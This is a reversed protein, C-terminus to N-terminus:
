FQRGIIQRSINQRSLKRIPSNNKTSTVIYNNTNKEATQLKLLRPKTKKKIAQVIYEAWFIEVSMYRLFKHEIFDRINQELALLVKKKGTFLKEKLDRLFQLQKTQSKVLELSRLM